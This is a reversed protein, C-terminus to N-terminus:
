AAEGVVLDGIKWDTKKTFASAKWTRDDADYNLVSGGDTLTVYGKDIDGTTKGESTVTIKETGAGGMTSITFKAKGKQAFMGDQVVTGGDKVRISGYLFLVDFQENVLELLGASLIADYAPQGPTLEFTPTFTIGGPKNTVTPLREAITAKETSEVAFTNDMTEIGVGIYHLIAGAGVMNPHAIFVEMESRDHTPNTVAVTPDYAM